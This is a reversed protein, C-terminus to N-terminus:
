TVFLSLCRRTFTVREGKQILTQAAAARDRLGNDVLRRSQSPPVMEIRKRLRDVLLVGRGHQFQYGTQM